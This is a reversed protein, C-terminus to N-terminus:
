PTVECLNLCPSTNAQECARVVRQFRTALNASSQSLLGADSGVAVFTFGNELYRIAEEPDGTLMGAPKNAARIRTCAEAIVAQVEPHKPHALHGLDAALDGPGIFIGDVGDVSAIAEIEDVAARTEVQVLVCIEQHADRHYGGVRGYRNARPAVCFGRNGDPPYRTAAVAQRAEAANQVFPVLLSRAGIDLLRKILVVDNWAARVVPEATGGAMAQLQSFVGPLENPAHETDVLIWDFGSGALIEAVINSCLRRERLAAKLLNPPLQLCQNRDM